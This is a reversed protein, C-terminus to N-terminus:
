NGVLSVQCKINQLQWVWKEYLQKGEFMGVVIGQAVIQINKFIEVKLM